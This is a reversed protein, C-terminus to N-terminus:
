RGDVGIEYESQRGRNPPLPIGLPEMGDLSPVDAPSFQVPTWPMLQLDTLPQGDRDVLRGRVKGAPLLQAVLPAPPQGKLLLSGALNRQSHYFVLQRPRAAAYGVVEFSDGRALDWSMSFAAQRGSYYVGDTDGLPQGDPGAF